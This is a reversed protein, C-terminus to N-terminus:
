ENSLCSAPGREDHSKSAMQHASEMLLIWHKSKQVFRETEDMSESARDAAAKAAYAVADLKALREYDPSGFERGVPLVFEWAYEEDTLWHRSEHYMKFM